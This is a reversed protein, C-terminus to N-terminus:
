AVRAQRGQFQQLRVVAEHPIGTLYTTSFRGNAGGMYGRTQPAWNTAEYAEYKLVVPPLEYVFMDPYRDKALQAMALNYAASGADTNRATPIWALPLGTEHCHHLVKAHPFPVLPLSHTHSRGAAPPIWRGRSGSWTSPVGV